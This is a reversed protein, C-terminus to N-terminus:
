RSGSLREEAIQDFTRDGGELVAKQQARKQWRRICLDLYHPDKEIGRCRRGSVHAAILTTGSGLFPDYVLDGVDSHDQIPDLMCKLPKQTPHETKDQAAEDGDTKDQAADDKSPREFKIPWVDTRSDGGVWTDDGDNPPKGKRAYLCDEHEHLYHRGVHTHHDKKWVIASKVSFLAAELSATVECVYKPFHWIYAVTGPFNMYAATFDPRKKKGAGEESKIPDNGEMVHRKNKRRPVPVVYPPDTVMLHPNDKGLLKEVVELQTSDGCIIKHDGLIWIDGLQSVAEDELVTEDDEGFQEDFRRQLEKLVRARLGLTRPDVGNRRTESYLEFLADYDWNQDGYLTALSTAFAQQDYQTTLGRHQIVPIEEIGLERAAQWADQGVIIVGNDTVHIPDSWGHKEMFKKLLKVKEADVKQVPRAMPHLSDVRRMRGSLLRLQTKKAM